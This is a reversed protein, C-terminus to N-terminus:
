RLFGEVLPRSWKSGKVGNDLAALMRETWITTDVWNWDRVRTEAEQKARAPVVSAESVSQRKGSKM